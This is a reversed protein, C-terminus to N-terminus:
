EATNECVSCWSQWYCSGKKRREIWHGKTREQDAKCQLYGQDYGDDYAKNIKPDADFDPQELLKIAKTLIGSQAEYYEPAKGGKILASRFWELESIVKEAEKM